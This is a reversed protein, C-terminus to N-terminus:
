KAPPKEWLYSTSTALVHGDAAVVDLKWAVPNTKVDPWDAGTLGLNFLAGGTPIETAFSYTRGKTDNPMILQVNIKATAAAGANATRVLFYYGSRQEPHTRVVITGGTHEKGDFYEAIRKFSPGDRWGTYVRVVSLGSDAAVSTAPLVASLLLLTLSAFYGRLLRLSV